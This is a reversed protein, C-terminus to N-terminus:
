SWSSKFRGLKNSLDTTSSTDHNLRLERLSANLPSSAVRLNETPSSENTLAAKSKLGEVEEAPLAPSLLLM